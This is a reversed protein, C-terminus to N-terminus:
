IHQEAAQYIDDYRFNIRNPHLKKHCNICVVRLNDSRSNKIDEDEHHLHTVNTCKGCDECKNLNRGLFLLVARARKFYTRRTTPEYETIFEWVGPSVEKISSPRVM